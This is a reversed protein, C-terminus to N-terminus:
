KHSQKIARLRDILTDTIIVVEKNEMDIMSEYLDTTLSNIENMEFNVYNVLNTDDTNKM